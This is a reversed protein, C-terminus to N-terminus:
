IIARYILYSVYKIIDEKSPNALAIEVGKEIANVINLEPVNADITLKVFPAIDGISKQYKDIDQQTIM